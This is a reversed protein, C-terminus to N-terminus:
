RAAKGNYFVEVEIRPYPRLLFAQLPPRAAFIGYLFGKSLEKTIKPFVGQKTGAKLKLFSTFISDKGSRLCSSKTKSSQM